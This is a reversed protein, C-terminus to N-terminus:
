SGGTSHLSLWERVGKLRSERENDAPVVFFFTEGEVQDEDTRGSVQVLGDASSRVQNIAQPVRKSGRFNQPKGIKQWGPGPEISGIRRQYIQQMPDEFFGICFSGQSQASIAKLVEVVNPFTDHSEDVFVYPYKSAIIRRFLESAMILDSAM